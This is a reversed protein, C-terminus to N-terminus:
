KKGDVSGKKIFMATLMGLAFGGGATLLLLLIYPMELTMHLFRTEVPAHNQFILIGLATVLILMAIIKLNKM